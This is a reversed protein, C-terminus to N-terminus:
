GTASQHTSLLAPSTRGSRTVPQLRHLVGKSRSGAFVGRTGTM